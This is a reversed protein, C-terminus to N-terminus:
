HREGIAACLPEPLVVKRVVRAPRADYPMVVPAIRRFPTSPEIERLYGQLLCQTLSTGAIDYRVAM